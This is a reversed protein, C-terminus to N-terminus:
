IQKETTEYQQNSLKTAMASQDEAQKKLTPWINTKFDEYEQSALDAMQQQAKGINPDAAPASVSNKGGELTAPAFSGLKKQFAREPLTSFHDYRM